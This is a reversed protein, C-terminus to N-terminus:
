SGELAVIANRLETIHIAKVTTIRELIPEPYIPPTLGHATYAEGLATRLQELVDPM